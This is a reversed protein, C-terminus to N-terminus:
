PSITSAHFGGGGKAGNLRCALSPRLQPLCSGIQLIDDSTREGRIVPEVHYRSGEEAQLAGELGVAVLHLPGIAEEYVNEGLRRAESGPDLVEAVLVIGDGGEKGLRAPRSRVVVLIEDLQPVPQRGYEGGDPGMAARSGVEYVLREIDVDSSTASGRGRRLGPERVEGRESGQPGTGVGTWPSM